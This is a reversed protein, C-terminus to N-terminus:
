FNERFDEEEEEEAAVPIDIVQVPPNVAQAPIQEQKVAAGGKAPLPRLNAVYTLARQELDRTRAEIQEKIEVEPLVFKTKKYTREKFEKIYGPRAFSSEVNPLKVFEVAQGPMKLIAHQTPQNVMTAMARWIQEELTYSSVPLDAMIPVLGETRGTTKGEIDVDIEAWNETDSWNTSSSDAKGRAQTAGQGEAIGAPIMIAQNDYTFMITSSNTEAGTMSSGEGGGTTRARGTTTGHSKAKSEAHSQFWERVHGVVTPRTLGQKWEELDLEGLFVNKVMIEADEFNLGGFIVKTKANTMVSHYIHEGAKKLQALHQHALILHLGFKRGEDLIRGVDNNVFLGCEDIYCYFPRSGEPRARANMFLDNVILSGLLQANADSVIDRSALNILVIHGEDMAQRFDITNEIQGITYRILPSKLFELLRNETSFIYDEFTRRDFSNFKRWEQRIIEDKIQDALYPRINFENFDALFRAELLSLRNEALAHFIITLCRKLLPTKSTDEGGWVKACAEVMGDVLFSIHATGARLPNFGFAMDQESPDFLIIKRKGLLSKETAWTVLDKYLYGHPDLLCLGCEEIIDNRIMWELFKSKGTGTSGIVHMHTTRDKKPVYVRRGTKVSKGAAIDGM